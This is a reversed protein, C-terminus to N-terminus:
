LHLDSSPALPKLSELTQKRASVTKECLATIAALDFAVDRTRPNLQEGGQAIRTPGKYISFLVGLKPHALGRFFWSEMRDPKISFLVRPNYNAQGGFFCSEMRDPKDSLSNCFKVTRKLTPSKLAKKFKSLPSFPIDSCYEQAGSITLKALEKGINLWLMNVPAWAEDRWDRPPNNANIVLTAAAINANYAEILPQWDFHKSNEIREGNFTFEIGQEEIHKCEDYLKQKTKYGKEELIDIYKKLMRSMRTDGAWFPYGGASMSKFYRGAADRMPKQTSILKDMLAYNEEKLLRQLIAKAQNQNDEGEIAILYLFKDVMYDEYLVKDLIPDIIREGKENITKDFGVSFMLARNALPSQKEHNRRLPLFSSIQQLVVVPLSKFLALSILKAEESSAKNFISNVANLLWSWNSTKTVETSKKM